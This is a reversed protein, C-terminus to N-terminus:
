RRATMVQQNDIVPSESPWRVDRFRARTAARTLEARTIARFRTTHETAQWGDHRETLVILRVTYCPRDEDWDHVRLLMQRPPGAVILPAAVSPRERLARDFDRMTIVLLGGPTLRSRMQQMVTLVDSPELLHPLANDCAIVVDFEGDIGSLDRFDAVDFRAEIGLRRAEHRARDIAGHSLDTGVVRYGLGALGIAQTGIGCACDLVSEARPVYTRILRDLAGAQEDVAREWEGGYVLEYDGALGDYFRAANRSGSAAM